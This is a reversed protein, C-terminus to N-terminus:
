KQKEAWSKIVFGPISFQKAAAAISNEHSYDIVKQKFQQSFVRRPRVTYIKYVSNWLSITSLPVNYKRVASSPGHRKVYELVMKKFEESERSYEKGPGRVDRKRYGTYIKLTSNWSRMTALNVRYTYMASSLGYKQAYTLIEIKEEQTYQRMKQMAYVGYERNWRVITSSPLRFHRAAITTGHEKAWNLIMLKYAKSYAM